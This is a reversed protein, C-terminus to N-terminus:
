KAVMPWEIVSMWGNHEGPENGDDRWDTTVRAPEIGGNLEMLQDITFAVTQLHKLLGESPPAWIYTPQEISTKM